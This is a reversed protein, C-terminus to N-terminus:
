CISTATTETKTAYSIGYSSFVQATRCKFPLPSALFFLLLLRLASLSLFPSLLGSCPLVSFLFISRFFAVFFPPLLLTCFWCASTPRQKRSEPSKIESPSTKRRRRRRM